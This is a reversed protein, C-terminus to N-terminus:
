ENEFIFNGGWDRIKLFVSEIKGCIPSVLRLFPKELIHKRALDVFTCCIYVILIVVVSYPIIRATNEYASSRFLEKWLLPRLLNSDHLLYVGFTASAVENIFRSHKLKLKAFAMFFCVASFITFCSQRTNFLLSIITFIRFKTGLAVLLCCLLYKIMSFMFWLSFWKKSSFDPYLGYEKIYSAISYYLIFEVLTNSTVVSVTQLLSTTLMPIISWLLLLFLLFHQFQKKTFSILFKNIYPHFLFLVFYASAFWWRSFTIPFLAKIFDTGDINDTGLVFAFCFLVISYFFIEGWLKAIKTLSVSMTGNGILFYGSILIFVVVGFNGGMELVYWWLRPVTIAEVDFHFDGHVAFHSGVIMIMIIIRLLEINSSRANIVTQKAEQM